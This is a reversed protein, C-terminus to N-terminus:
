EKGDWKVSIYDQCNKRSRQFWWDSLDGNKMPMDLVAVKGGFSAIPDSFAAGPGHIRSHGHYKQGMEGGKKAPKAQGGLIQCSGIQLCQKAFSAVLRPSNEFTVPPVRSCLSQQNGLWLQCLSRQIRLKKNNAGLRKEVTWGPNGPHSLARFPFPYCIVVTILMLLQAIELNKNGRTVIPPKDHTEGPKRRFHPGLDLSTEFVSKLPTMEGPNAVTAGAVSPFQPIYDILM